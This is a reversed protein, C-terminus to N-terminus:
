IDARPYRAFTMDRLVIQNMAPREFIIDVWAKELRKENMRTYALDFEVFSDGQSLPMERVLQENNPGHKINLRCFIELPRELELKLDLRVLHNRHLGRLATEPLDLAFSLFSGGFRFVDMRLAFPALDTEHRNRIQRLTIESESCDHFLTLERGLQARNEAGAVGFPSVPGRWLEPRWTWDSTPPAPVSDAGIRPLQMRGEVQHLVADIERRLARADSRLLPLQALSLSGAARAAERWRALARRQVVRDLFSSRPTKAM